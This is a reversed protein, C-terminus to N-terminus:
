FKEEEIGMFAAVRKTIRFIRDTSAGNEMLLQGVSLIIEAKESVATFTENLLERQEDYRGKFNNEAM